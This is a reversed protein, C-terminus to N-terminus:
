ASRGHHVRGDEFHEIVKPYRLAVDCEIIKTSLLHRRKSRLLAYVLRVKASRFAVIICECGLLSFYKHVLSARRENPEQLDQALAESLWLCHIKRIFEYLATPVEGEGRKARGEGHSPSKPFVLNSKGRGVKRERKALRATSM